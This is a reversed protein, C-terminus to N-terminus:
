KKGSKIIIPKPRGDHLAVIVKQPESMKEARSLLQSLIAWMPKLEEVIQEPGEMMKSEDALDDRL